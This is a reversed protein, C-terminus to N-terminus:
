LSAFCLITYPWPGVFRLVTTKKKKLDHGVFCNQTPDHVLLDYYQTPDHVLFVTYHLTM